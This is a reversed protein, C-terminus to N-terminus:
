GTGREPNAQESTREVWGMDSMEDGGDVHTVCELEVHDHQHHGVDGPLLLSGPGDGPRVVPQRHDLGRHCIDVPQHRALDLDTAAAGAVGGVRERRQGLLVRTALQEGDDAVVRCRSDGGALTVVFDCRDAREHQRLGVM